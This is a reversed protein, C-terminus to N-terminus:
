VVSKRDPDAQVLYTACSRLLAAQRWDIGAMLVLGNFGDIAANGRQLAAVMLSLQPGCQAVDVARGDIRELACESIAVHRAGDDRRPTIRYSRTDIVHLGLCEILPLLQSLPLPEGPRCVVAHLRTAPMTETRYFDVTMAQGPALREM